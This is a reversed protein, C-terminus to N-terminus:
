DFTFLYFSFITLRENTALIEGVDMKEFVWYNTCVPDVMRCAKGWLERQVPSSEASHWPGWALGRVQTM